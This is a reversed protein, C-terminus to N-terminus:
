GAKAQPQDKEPFYEPIQELPIKLYNCIKYVDTLEFPKEGKLRQGLYTNGRGIPQAIYQRDIGRQYLLTKLANFKKRNGKM